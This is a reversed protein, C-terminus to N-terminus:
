NRQLMFCTIELLALFRQSMTGPHLFYIKLQLSLKMKKEEKLEEKDYDQYLYLIEHMVAKIVKLDPGSM